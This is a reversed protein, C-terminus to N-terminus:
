TGATVDTRRTPAVDELPKEAIAFLVLTTPDIHDTIAFDADTIGSRGEGQESSLARYAVRRGAAHLAVFWPRPLRHRLGLPDLRLLRQAMARRREFDAKAVESGDLGLITVSGFHRGLTQALDDPGFLHVHYPNEFDAPANPTVFFASGDARLVRAVERCHHRPEAFHEILHSSSVHDFSRDAFPLASGDGCVTSLGESGHLRRAEAATTPDYDLGIVTRDPTAFGISGDGLGCGLDLMRSGALRERIERYGAAHLALLSDPTQGEIPREGTLKVHM